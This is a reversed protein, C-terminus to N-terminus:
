KRDDESSTTTSRPAEQKRHPHTRLTSDFLTHTKFNFQTNLIDNPHTKTHRYIEYQELTNLKQSKPQIHLIEMDTNIDRYTHNTNTIHEAYTSTNQLKTIATIHEKYRTQFSRGTQGIYFNNCTNCKLKYLGTNNYKNTQTTQTNLHKQLTNNTKSLSGAPENGGECLDAMTGIRTLKIWDRNDYGVERLDIKINDEWRRRPRGLPRKREPRGFLVRYANRPEVMRAIQGEPQSKQKEFRVTTDIIYGNNNNPPLAIMDIRRTSGIDALGDVEEFVQFNISRFQEAIMSRIRHQRSNRLVECHLCSGLVYALTEPERVKIGKYLDRINKNKSNTEVENLKEKLYDRKKNRLTRNAERRKNFYNDRNAEIPDQLFKLKAQKRREVVMCCDEGFWPKKKKTEYYGISQEAAIKINDRINEWMSNVDLEEEVEDSSALVAFKNSIEVQYHQKTEEDEQSVRRLSKNPSRTFSVGIEDIKEETLVRQKRKPITANISGTTRLKNVLCRVTERGQIPAGPYKVEFQRRVERCSETKVYADYMFVRQELTFKANQM